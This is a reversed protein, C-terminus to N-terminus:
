ARVLLSADVIVMVLACRGTWTLPTGSVRGPAPILVRVQGPCRTSENGTKVPGSPLEGAQRLCQAGLAGARPGPELGAAVVPRFLAEPGHGRRAGWHSGRLHQAAVAGARAAGPCAPGVVADHGSVRSVPQSQSATQWPGIGDVTGTSAYLRWGTCLPPRRHWM